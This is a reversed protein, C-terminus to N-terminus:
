FGTLFPICVWIQVSYRWLYLYPKPFTFCITTCYGIHNAVVPHTKVEWLVTLHLASPRFPARFKAWPHLWDAIIGGSLVALIFTERRRRKLRRRSSGNSLSLGFSTPLPFSWHVGYLEAELSVSCLLSPHPASNSLCISCAWCVEWLSSSYRLFFSGQPCANLGLYFSPSFYCYM